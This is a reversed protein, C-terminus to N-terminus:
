HREAQGAEALMPQIDTYLAMLEVDTLRPFLQQLETLVLYTVTDESRGRAAQVIAALHRCLEARWDPVGCREAVKPAPRWANALLSLEAANM